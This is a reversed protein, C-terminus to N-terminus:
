NRITSVFDAAATRADALAQPLTRLAASPYHQEVIAKVKQLPLLDGTLQQVGPEVCEMPGVGGGFLVLFDCLDRAVVGLDGESGLFVVAEEDLPRTSVTRWFAVKGGSGDQGFVRLREAPPASNSTWATMWELTEEP